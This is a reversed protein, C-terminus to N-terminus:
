ACRSCLMCMVFVKTEKLSGFMSYTGVTSARNMTLTARALAREIPPNESLRRRRWSRLHKWRGFMEGSEVDVGAFLVLLSEVAALARRRSEEVSELAPCVESSFVM